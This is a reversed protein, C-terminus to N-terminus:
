APLGYDRKCKVYMSKSSLIIEWIFSLKRKNGILIFNFICLFIPPADIRPDDLLIVRPEWLENEKLFELSYKLGIYVVFCKFKCRIDIFYFWDM